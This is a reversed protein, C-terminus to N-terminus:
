AKTASDASIAYSVRNPEQNKIAGFHATGGQCFSKNINFYVGHSFERLFLGESEGQFLSHVTPSLHM